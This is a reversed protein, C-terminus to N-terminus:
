TILYLEKTLVKLWKKSSLSHDGKRVIVLKKKAKKFIKLIKKSYIVPVSEDKEGHIMTVKLRYYINKSLVKNKRGDKILQYTIPYEYEGHKLSIIKKKYFEKKMDKTFKKWMLNELFEPASGIGLFGMIQKKFKEFQRLAIWAGMSSGIIYFNNNKIYQNILISTEKSWKSINGNTFKGTSKGHGSYELALFSIKNKRAFKLFAKPKKGELDSMFGHLFVIFPSNKYIKCIHRIKKTKSIKHFRFNAM